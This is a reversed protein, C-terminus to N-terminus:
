AAVSAFLAFSRSAVDAAVSATEGQGRQRTRLEIGL